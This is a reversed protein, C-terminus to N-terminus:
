DEDDEFDYNEVSIVDEMSEDSFAVNESDSDKAVDVKTEVFSANEELIDHSLVNKRLSYIYSERLSDVDYRHDAIERLAIVACKDNNRDMNSLSGREIQKARFSGLVALEFRNEIVELCDEVTVRAM